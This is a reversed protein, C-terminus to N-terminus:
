RWCSPWWMWRHKKANTETFLGSISDDFLMFSWM